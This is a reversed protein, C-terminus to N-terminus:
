RPTVRVPLSRVGRLFTTSFPPIPGAPEIRAFRDALRTFVTQAELRALPAGLCHHIGWGFSLPMEGKRGVDFREPERFREPDRNAGGVLPIVVEGAGIIEGGLEMPESVSRGNTQVVSEYRLIEDVATVALGAPDAWFRAMEAPHRFFSVMGNGILNTTTVFGAGFLLRGTAIMEEESLPGGSDRIEILASLLADDPEKRKRAVLDAFYADQYEMARDAAELDATTAGVESARNTIRVLERFQEREEAPVGVLEGIVAVPLRFALAAMFDVEGAEAMHDLMPDVLAVIRDELGAVRRPTFARSVVGRLRTHEPPNQMIMTMKMRRLFREALAPNQGYRTVMGSGRGARPDVLVAKCDDYRSAYWHGDLESRFLPAIDRLARYLLYPDQRGEETGLLVHLIEDAPSRTARTTATVTM